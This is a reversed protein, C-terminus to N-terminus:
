RSRPAISRLLGRLIRGLPNTERVAAGARENPTIRGFDIGAATRDLCADEGHRYGADDTPTAM